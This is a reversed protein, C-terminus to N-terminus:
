SLKKLADSISHTHHEVEEILTMNTRSVSTRNKRYFIVAASVPPKIISIYNYIILNSTIYTLTTFKALISSFLNIRSLTNNVKSRSM